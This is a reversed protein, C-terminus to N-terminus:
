KNKLKELISKFSLKELPHVENIHIESENLETILNISDKNIAIVVYKNGIKVIQLMKNQNIRYTDIVTFNSNKLQGLKKAGIFRSTYYAAVLILIMLLVLGILQLVNDTTSLKPGDSNPLDKNIIDALGDEAKSAGQLLVMTKGFM